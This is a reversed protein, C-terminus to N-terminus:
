QANSRAPANRRLVKGKLAGTYRDHDITITGNVIVYQFGTAMNKPSKFTANARIEEPKFVLIDAYAGAAIRGRDNLGYTEAVLDTSRHIMDGLSIVKEKMVYKQIKEAFSGAPRPHGGFDGGDTCNMVWSQKMFNAIDEECMVFTALGAGGKRALAITAELPSLGMERAVEELTKGQHKGSTFLITEAGGREVILGAVEAKIKECTLSDELRKRLGANGGDRCWAPFLASTVSTGSAQYPYQDATVKVGEKQAKEITAIIADSQGWVSKGLCKIHSINVPVGAVRGVNLAEEISAQLGIGDKNENRVHTTYIGGYPAMFKALEYVEDIAAFCGPVYFLGTSLGFSGSKLDEAFFEKMKEVEEVTSLRAVEGMVKGRLTGHGTFSATNPGIGQQELKAFYESLPYHSGGCMGTFVTTVGMRLYNEDSRTRLLSGEQHSHPDIFGPCVVYGDAHIITDAKFKKGAKGVYIIREGKIVVDAVVAEAGSGNYVTGGSIIIDAKERGSLPLVSLLLISALCLFSKNLISKM